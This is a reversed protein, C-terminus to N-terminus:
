VSGPMPLTPERGSALRRYGASLPCQGGESHLQRIRARRSAGAIRFAARLVM